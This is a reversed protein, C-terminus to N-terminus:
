IRGSLFRLALRPQTFPFLYPSAECCASSCPTTRYTGELRRHWGILRTLLRSIEPLAQNRAWREKRMGTAYVTTFTLLAAVGVSTLFWLISRKRSGPQEVPELRQRDDNWWADIEERYAFVSAQKKHIKRRVPLGEKEWRRVTREDRKLYAAIEKWSDLRQTALRDGIDAKPQPQGAM